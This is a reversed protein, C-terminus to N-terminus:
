RRDLKGRPFNTMRLLVWFFMRRGRHWEHVLFSLKWVMIWSDMMSMVKWTKYFFTYPYWHPHTIAAFPKRIRIPDCAADLWKQGYVLSPEIRKIAYDNIWSALLAKASRLRVYIRFFATRSRRLSSERRRRKADYEARREERWMVHASANVANGGPAAYSEKEVQSTHTHTSAGKSRIRKGKRVESGM